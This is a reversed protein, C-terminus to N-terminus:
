PLGLVWKMFAERYELFKEVASSIGYRKPNDQMDQEQESVQTFDMPEKIPWVAGGGLDDPSANPYPNGSYHHCGACTQTRIRNVINIPTLNSGAAKLANQISQSLVPMTGNACPELFAARIDGKVPDGDWEDGEFANEETRSISFGISNFDGVGQGPGAAGLLKSIQNQIDFTLLAVRPEVSGCRFLDSGPMTKATDPVIRLRGDSASLVAKFERLTWTFDLAASGFLFQSTRIQGANFNYHAIAVVPGVGYAPLGNLYFDHLKQGRDKASMSPDSLSYWFDLIPLCGKVGNAPQPNPVRAEFNILNRNKGNSEKPKGSNRAFLIRYEGCDLFHDDILDFRNSFAIASYGADASENTFPDSSAESVEPRPCRYPFGNRPSFGGQPPGEDDCHPGLRLGTAALGATDWWQHFLDLKTLSSNGGQTVLQGMVESFKIKSTTAVDTVLISLRPDLVLDRRSPAGAAGFGLAGLPVEGREPHYTKRTPGATNQSFLTGNQAAAMPGDGFLFFAASMVISAIFTKDKTVTMNGEKARIAKQWITKRTSKLHISRKEEDVFIIGINGVGWLIQPKEPSFVV